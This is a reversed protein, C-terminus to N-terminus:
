RELQWIAPRIFIINSEMLSLGAQTFSEMQILIFHQIVRLWGTYMQATTYDFYYCGEELEQWQLGLAGNEHVYYTSGNWNVFGKQEGIGALVKISCVKSEGSANYVYAQVTYVGNKEPM